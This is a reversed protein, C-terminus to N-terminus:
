FSCYSQAPFSWLDYNSLVAARGEREGSVIGYLYPMIRAWTSAMTSPHGWIVSCQCVVFRQSFGHLFHFARATVHVIWRFTIKFMANIRAGGKSVQGFIPSTGFTFCLLFIKIRNVLCAILAIISGPEIQPQLFATPLIFNFSLFICFLMNSRYKLCIKHM